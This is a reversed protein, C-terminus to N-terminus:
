VLKPPGIQRATIAAYQKVLFQPSVPHKTMGPALTKKGNSHFYCFKMKEVSHESYRVLPPTGAPVVAEVLAASVGLPALSKSLGSPDPAARRAGAMLHMFNGVPACTQVDPPALSASSSEASEFWATEPEAGGLGM